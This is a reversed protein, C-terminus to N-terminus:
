VQQCPTPGRRLHSCPACLSSIPRNTPVARRPTPAAPHTHTHSVWTARGTDKLGAHEPGVGPYDLGASISHTEQCQGDKDQLLYTMTGHLVGPKGKSITASHLDAGNGDAEVGVLKVDQDGVFPHFIGIANSGGGVCAVVYDPLSCAGARPVDSCRLHARAM